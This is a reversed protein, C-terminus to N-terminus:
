KETLAVTTGVPIFHPLAKIKLLRKAFRKGTMVFIHRFTAHAERSLTVTRTLPGVVPPEPLNLIV